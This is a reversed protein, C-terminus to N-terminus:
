NFNNLSVEIQQSIVSGELLCVDLRFKLAIVRIHFFCIQAALNGATSGAILLPLHWKLHLLLLMDPWRLFGTTAFCMPRQRCISQKENNGTQISQHESWCSPRVHTQAHTDRHTNLALLRALIHLSAQQIEIQHRNNETMREPAHISLHLPLQIYHQTSIYLTDRHLMYQCTFAKHHDQHIKLTAWQLAQDLM